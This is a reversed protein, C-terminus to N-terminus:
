HGSYDLVHNLGRTSSHFGAAHHTYRSLTWNELDIYDLKGEANRALTVALAQLVEELPFYLGEWAIRLVNGELFIWPSEHGLAGQGAKEVAALIVPDAPFFAAYVKALPRTM